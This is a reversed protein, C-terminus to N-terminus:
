GKDYNNKSKIKIKGIVSDQSESDFPLLSWMSILSILDVHIKQFNKNKYVYM